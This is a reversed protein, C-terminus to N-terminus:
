LTVLVTSGPLIRNTFLSASGRQEGEVGKDRNGAYFKSFLKRVLTGSERM